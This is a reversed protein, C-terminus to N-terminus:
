LMLGSGGDGLCINKGRNNRGCVHLDGYVMLKQCSGPTIRIPAKRPENAASSNPSTHGWGATYALIGDTLKESREPLCAIGISRSLPVPSQLKILALDHVPRPSIRSIQFKPHIIYAAPRMVVENKSSRLRNYHGMYIKVGNAPFIKSTKFDFM